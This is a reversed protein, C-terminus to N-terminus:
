NSNKGKILPLGATQWATLGGALVMPQTFGQNRLKSALAPSQLGRACVLVLPKTKYKDMKNQLFDDASACIADIIHGGRFTEQDRLDIITADEHNILAVVAAPSLEKARKKQSLLENIFIFALIVILALWLEWHNVIFQGIQDM